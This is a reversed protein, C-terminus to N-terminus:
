WSVPAVYYQEYFRRLEHATDVGAELPKDRLSKLNGWTFHSFPHHPRCTDCVVQQMRCTDSASSLNFESEISQLERASAELRMLPSIFFQAFIDLAEGLHNFPIEFHYVTYECETYANSNGGGSSIFSDYANESPYKESGMFLMHELYHALGQVSSPDSFSGVGVAMAAGAVRVSGPHHHHHHHHHHNLVGTPHVDSGSSYGDHDDADDGSSSSSSCAREIGECVSGEEEEEEMSVVDDDSGDDDDDDEGEDQEEADSWEDAEEETEEGGVLPQSSM